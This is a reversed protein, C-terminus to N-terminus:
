FLRPQPTRTGPSGPFPGPPSNHAHWSPGCQCLPTTQSDGPHAGKPDMRVLAHYPAIQTLARWHQAPVTAPMLIPVSLTFRRSCGVINHSQQIEPLCTQTCIPVPLSGSNCKSNHTCESGTGVWMTFPPPLPVTPSGMRVLLTCLSYLCPHEDAGRPGSLMGATLRM